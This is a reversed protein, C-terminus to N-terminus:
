PYNVLYGVLSAGLPNGPIVYNTTYTIRFGDGSYAYYPGRFEATQFNAMKQMVTYFNLGNIGLQVVGPTAAGAAFDTLNITQVVLRKGPPSTCV